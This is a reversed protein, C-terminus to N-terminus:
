PARQERLHYRQLLYDGDVPVVDFAGEAAPSRLALDQIAGADRFYKIVLADQEDVALLLAQLPGAGGAQGGKSDRVVAAVRIDQLVTLTRQGAPAGPSSKSFDFSFMLDVHDGPRVIEASSLLDLTPFAIIVQKPDMALAAKPGVYDPKLLRRELIIEGRAIDETTLNGIAKQPDVLAGEPVMDRPVKRLFVDGAALVTHLPIDRSAVVVEAKPEEVPATVTSVARQLVFLAIAGALVALLLGATFWLWGRRLM